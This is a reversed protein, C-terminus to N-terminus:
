SAFKARCKPVEQAVIKLLRERDAKALCRSMLADVYVAEFEDLEKVYRHILRRSLPPINLSKVLAKADGMLNGRPVVHILGRQALLPAEAAEGSLMRLATLRDLRDLLPRAGFAPPVGAKAEPYCIYVDPPAIVLDAWLAIEMGIGVASGNLVVFVPKASSAMLAFLSKIARVTERVSDYDDGLNVWDIGATFYAGGMATIVVKNVNPDQSALMLASTLQVLVDRNIRNFEGNDVAIVGIGEENWIKVRNFFKEM